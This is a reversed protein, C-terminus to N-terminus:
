PESVLDPERALRDVMDPINELGEGEVFVSQPRQMGLADLVKADLSVRSGIKTLSGYIAYDAGLRGALRRALSLDLPKGAQKLAPLVEEGPLATVGEVALRESLQKMLAAHEAELPQRSFVDFPFVAAKVPEAAQAQGPLVFCLALVMGLAFKKM